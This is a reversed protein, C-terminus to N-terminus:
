LSSTQAKPDGTEHRQVSVASPREGTQEEYIASIYCFMPLERLYFKVFSVQM